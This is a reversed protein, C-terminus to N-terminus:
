DHIEAGDFIRLIFKEKKSETLHLSEMFLLLGDVDATWHFSQGLIQGSSTDAISECPVLISLSLSELSHLRPPMLILYM